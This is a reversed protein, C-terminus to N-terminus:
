NGKSRLILDLYRGNAKLSKFFRIMICNELMIHHMFKLSYGHLIKVTELHRVFMEAVVERNM